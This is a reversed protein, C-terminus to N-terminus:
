LAVESFTFILSFVLPQSKPFFFAVFLCKCPMFPPLSFVRFSASFLLKEEYESFSVRGPGGWCSQGALGPGAHLQSPGDLVRPCRTPPRAMAAM